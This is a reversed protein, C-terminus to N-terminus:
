YRNGGLDGARWMQGPSFSDYWGAFTEQSYTEVTTENGENKEFVRIQELNFQNLINESHTAILFQSEQGKEQFLNAILNLMDPHLGIEPEDISIFSGRGPNFLISLLCLFRLTGDSLHTIHVPTNLHAEELMLELRGSSGLYNFDFDLFNPNVEQLKSKMERFNAKNSIKLTNIMQALNAGNFKLKKGGTALQSRRIESNPGTEFYNYLAIEEIATKLTTLHFFRDFDGVTSLFLEQPDGGEYRTLQGNKEDPYKQDNIFGKGNSFDLWVLDNGPFLFPNYLEVKEKIYYDFALSRRILIIQYVVDHSFAMGYRTLTTHDFVYELVIRNSSLPTSEGKFSVNDFGGWKDLFLEKLGKKGSFAEILLEIAKFVNSKGSGNIGVMLTSDGSLKITEEQFSFFNVLRIQKIM